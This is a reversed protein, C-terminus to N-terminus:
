HIIKGVPRKAALMWAFLLCLFNFIGNLEKKNNNPSVNHLKGTREEWGSAQKRDIEPKVAWKISIWRKETDCLLSFITSPGLLDLLSSDNEWFYIPRWIKTSFSKNQSLWLLFCTSFNRKIYENKRGSYFVKGECVCHPRFHLSPYFSNWWIFYWDIKRLWRNEMFIDSLNRFDIMLIIIIKCNLLVLIIM